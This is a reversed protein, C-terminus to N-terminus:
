DTIDALVSFEVIGRISRLIFFLLFTWLATLVKNQKIMRRQLDHHIVISEIKLNGHFHKLSKGRKSINRKSDFKWSKDGKGVDDSSDQIISIM